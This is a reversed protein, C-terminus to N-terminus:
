RGFAQLRGASRGGTVTEDTVAGTLGCSVSPDRCPLGLRGPRYLGLRQRSPDPLVDTPHGSARAERRAAEVICGAIEPPQAAITALVRHARERQAGVIADEVIDVFRFDSAARADLKLLDRERSDLPLENAMAVLQEEETEAAPGFERDIAHRAPSPLSCRLSMWDSRGWAERRFLSAWLGLAAVLEPDIARRESLSLGSRTRIGEAESTRM